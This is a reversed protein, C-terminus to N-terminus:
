AAAHTPSGTWSMSSKKYWTPRSTTRGRGKTLRATRRARCGSSRGPTCCEPGMGPACFEDAGYWCLDGSLWCLDGSCGAFTALCGAFTWTALWKRTMM